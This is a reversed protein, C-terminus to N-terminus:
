KLSLNKNKYEARCSVDEGFWDPPTFNNAEELTSFEVEVVTLGEHKGSYIDLEFVYKGSPIYYRTKEIVRGSTKAFLKEFTKEDTKHEREDRVINGGSKECIYYEDGKKRVRIEPLLSVYGQIIKDHRLGDLSPIRKVLFKREIEMM